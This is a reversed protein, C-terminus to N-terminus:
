HFGNIKGSLLELCRKILCDISKRSPTPKDRIGYKPNLTLLKIIFTLLNPETKIKFKSWSEYAVEKAINKVLNSSTNEYNSFNLKEWKYAMTTIKYQFNLGLM